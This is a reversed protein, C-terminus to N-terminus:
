EELEKCAIDLAKQGPALEKIMAINEALFRSPAPGLYFGPAAYRDNWKDRDDTM